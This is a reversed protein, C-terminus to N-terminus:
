TAETAASGTPNRDVLERRAQGAAASAAQIRDRYLECERKFDSAKAIFGRLAGLRVRSTPDGDPEILPAVAEAHSLYDGIEEIPTAQVMEAILSLRQVGARFEYGEM